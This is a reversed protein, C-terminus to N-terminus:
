TPTQDRLRLTSVAFRCEAETARAYVQTSSLHRHRLCRSITAIDAGGERLLRAYTHRFRHLCIGPMKLTRAFYNTARASMARGDAVGGVHEIVYGRPFDRVHEWVERQMPVPASVGGKGHRVWIVEENIDERKQGALESARLGVGAALIVATRYPERAHELVYALEADTVPRPEGRPAKPRRMGVMPNDELVPVGGEGNRPDVGWEFFANLHYFVKARTAPGWDNEGLFTELERRDAEAVGFPMVADARELWEKRAGYTRESVAPRLWACHAHILDSM